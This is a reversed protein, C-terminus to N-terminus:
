IQRTFKPLSSFNPSTMLGPRPHVLATSMMRIRSQLLKMMTERRSLRKSSVPSYTGIAGPPSKKKKVVRGGVNVWLCKENGMFVCIKKQITLPSVLVGFIIPHQLAFKASKCSSGQLDASKTSFSYQLPHESGWMKSAEENYSARFRKRYQAHTVKTLLLSLSLSAQSTM